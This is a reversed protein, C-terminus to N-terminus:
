AAHEDWLLPVGARPRRAPAAALLDIRERLRAIADAKRVDDASLRRGDDDFALAAPEDPVPLDGAVFVRTGDDREIISGAAGRDVVRGSYSRRSRLGLVSGWLVKHRKKDACAVTCGDKGRALVRGSLPGKDGRFYVEDGESYGSGPQEADGRRQLRADIPSAHKKGRVADMSSM